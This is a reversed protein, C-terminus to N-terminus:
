WDSPSTVGFCVGCPYPTKTEEHGGREDTCMYVDKCWMVLATCFTDTRIPRCRSQPPTDWLALRVVPDPGYAPRPEAVVVGTFGPVM